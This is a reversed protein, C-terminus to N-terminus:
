YDAREALLADGTTGMDDPLRAVVLESLAFGALLWAASV